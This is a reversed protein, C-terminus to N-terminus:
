AICLNLNTNDAGKACHYLEPSAHPHDYTQIGSFDFQRRGDYLTLLPKTGTRWVVYFLPKSFFFYKSCSTLQSTRVVVLSYEAMIIIETTTNMLQSPIIASPNYLRLLPSRLIMM